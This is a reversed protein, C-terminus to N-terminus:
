PAILKFHTPSGPSQTLGTRLMASHSLQTVGGVHKEGSCVCGRTGQRRSGTTSAHVQGSCSSGVFLLTWGTNPSLLVSGLFLSLVPLLLLLSKAPPFSVWSCLHTLLNRLNLEQAAARRSTAGGGWGSVRHVPSPPLGERPCHPQVM